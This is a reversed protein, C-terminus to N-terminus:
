EKTTCQVTEMTEFLHCQEAGSQQLFWAKSKLLLAVCAREYASCCVTIFSSVDCLGEMAERKVFPSKLFRM